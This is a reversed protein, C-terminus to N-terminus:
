KVYVDDENERESESEHSEEDLGEIKKWSEGKTRGKVLSIGFGFVMWEDEDRKM